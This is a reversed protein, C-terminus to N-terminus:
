SSIKALKLERTSGPIGGTIFLYEVTSSSKPSAEGIPNGTSFRLEVYSTTGQPAAPVVFTVAGGVQSTSISVGACAATYGSSGPILLFPSSTEITFQTVTFRQASGNATLTLWYDFGGPTRTEIKNKKTTYGIRSLTPATGAAFQSCTASATTIQSIRTITAPRLRHDPCRATTYGYSSSTPARPTWTCTTRCAKAWDGIATFLIKEAARCQHTPIVQKLPFPAPPHRPLSVV